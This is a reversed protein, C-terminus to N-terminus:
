LTMLWRLPYATLGYGLAAGSFAQGWSHRGRHQRAWCLPGIVWLNWASWRAIEMCGALCAAMVSTHMSIKWGRSIWEFVFTQLFLVSALATLPWPGGYVALSLSLAAMGVRGARFPGKRQELLRVHLDTIRGHYVNWLIYAAPVGVSLATCLTALQYFESASRATAHALVTCFYPVCVFPSLVVSIWLALRDLFSRRSPEENM